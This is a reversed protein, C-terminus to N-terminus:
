GDQRKTSSRRWCKFSGSTDSHHLCRASDTARMSCFYTLYSVDYFVRLLYILCEVTSSFIMRWMEQTVLLEQEALTSRMHCQICRMRRLRLCLRFHTHPRHACPM